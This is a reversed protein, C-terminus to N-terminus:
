INHSLMNNKGNTQSHQHFIAILIKKIGALTKELMLVAHEASLVAGSCRLTLENDRLTLLMLPLDLKEKCAETWKGMGIDIQKQKWEPTM